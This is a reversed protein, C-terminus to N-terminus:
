RFSATFAAISKATAGEGALMEIFASGTIAGDTFSTADRFAAADGIGFGAVLPSRLNMDKLKRLYAM